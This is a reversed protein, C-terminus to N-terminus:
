RCRAPRRPACRRSLTSPEGHLAAAHHAHLEGTALPERRRDHHSVHHRPREGRQGAVRHRRRVRARQAAIAVARGRELDVPSEVPWIGQLAGSARSAPVTWTPPDAGSISSTVAIVPRSCSRGNMSSPCCDIASGERAGAPRCVAHAYVCPGDTRQVPLVLAVAVHLPHLGLHLPERGAKALPDESAVDETGGVQLAAVGVQDASIHTAAAVGEVLDDEPGDRRESGIPRRHAPRYRPLAAVKGPPATCPTGPRAAARSASASVRM